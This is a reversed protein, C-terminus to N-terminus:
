RPPGPIALFHTPDAYNGDDDYFPSEGNRGTFTWERIMKGGHEFEYRHALVQHWYGKGPEGCCWRGVVAQHSCPLLEIPQWENM